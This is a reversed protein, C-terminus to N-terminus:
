GTAHSNGDGTGALFKVPSDGAEKEPKATAISGSAQGM